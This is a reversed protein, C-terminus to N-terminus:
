LKDRLVHYTPPEHPITLMQPACDVLAIDDTCIGFLYRSFLFFCGFGDLCVFWNIIQLEYSEITTHCYKLLANVRPIDDICLEHLMFSSTNDM